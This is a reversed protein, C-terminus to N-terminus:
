YNHQYLEAKEACELVVCAEQRVVSCMSVSDVFQSSCIELPSGQFMGDDAVLLQCRKHCSLVLLIERSLQFRSAEALLANMASDANQNAALEASAAEM